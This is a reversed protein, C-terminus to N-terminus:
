ALVSGSLLLSLSATCPRPHSFRLMKTCAWMYPAYLRENSQHFVARSAGLRLRCSWSGPPRSVTYKIQSQDAPDDQLAAPM